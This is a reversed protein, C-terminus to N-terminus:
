LPYPRYPVVVLLHMQDQVSDGVFSVNGVGQDFSKVIALMRPHVMTAAGAM